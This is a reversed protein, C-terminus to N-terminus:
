SVQVSRIPNARHIPLLARHLLRRFWEHLLHNAPNSRSGHRTSSFRAWIPPSTIVLMAGDFSAHAGPMAGAVADILVTRRRLDAIEVDVTVTMVTDAAHEGGLYGLYGPLDFPLRALWRRESAARWRQGISIALMALAGGLLLGPALWAAHGLVAPLLVAGGLIALLGVVALWWAHRLAVLVRQDAPNPELRRPEVPPPPAAPRKRRALAALERGADERQQEHAALEAALRAREAEVQDHAAELADNERQARDLERALAAARQVAADHDDRYSM